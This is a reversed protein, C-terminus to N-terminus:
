RARPRRSSTSIPRCAAPPSPAASSGGRAPAAAQEKSPASCGTIVAVAGVVASRMLFARRDVGAPIEASTLEEGPLPTGDQGDIAHTM